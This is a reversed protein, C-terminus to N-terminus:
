GGMVGYGGRACFDLVCVVLGYRFHGAAFVALRRKGVLFEVDLSVFGGVGGVGVMRACFM